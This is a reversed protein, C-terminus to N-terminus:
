YHCPDPSRQFMDLSYARLLGSVRLNPSYVVAGNAKGPVASRGWKSPSAWCVM